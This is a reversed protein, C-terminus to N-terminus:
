VIRIPNIIIVTGMIMAVGQVVLAVQLVLVKYSVLTIQIILNRLTTVRMILQPINRIGLLTMALEMNKGIAFILSGGVLLIANSIFM